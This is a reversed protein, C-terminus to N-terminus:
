KVVQNPHICNGVAYGARFLEMGAHDDVDIIVLENGNNNIAVIVGTYISPNGNSYNVKQGITYTTM